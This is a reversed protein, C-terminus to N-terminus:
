QVRNHKIGLRTSSWQRSALISHVHSTIPICWNRSIHYLWAKAKMGKGNRDWGIECQGMVKRYDPSQFFLCPSVIGESRM